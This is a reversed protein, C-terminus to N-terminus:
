NDIVKFNDFVVAGVTGAIAGNRGNKWGTFDTFNATIAPNWDAYGACAYKRPFM